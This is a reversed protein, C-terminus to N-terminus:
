TLIWIICIISWALFKLIAARHHDTFADAHIKEMPSRNRIFRINNAICLISWALWVWSVILLVTELKENM